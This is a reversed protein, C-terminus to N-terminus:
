RIGDIQMTANPHNQLREKNHLQITKWNTNPGTQVVDMGKPWDRPKEHAKKGVNMDYLDHGPPRNPQIRSGQGIPKKHIDESRRNCRHTGYYSQQDQRTPQNQNSKYIVLGEMKQIQKKNHSLDSGRLGGNGIEQWDLSQITYSEVKDIWICHTYANWDEQITDQTETNSRDALQTPQWRM